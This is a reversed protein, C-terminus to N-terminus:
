NFSFAIILKIFAYSENFYEISHEHKDSKEEGEAVVNCHQSLLHIEILRFKRQHPHFFHLSWWNIFCLISIYQEEDFFYM